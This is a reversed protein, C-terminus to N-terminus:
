DMKKGAVEVIFLQQYEILNEYGKIYLKQLKGAESSDEHDTCIECREM